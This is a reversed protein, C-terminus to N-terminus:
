KGEIVFETRRNKARGEATINEAISKTSGFGKHSLRSAAVGQSVLHDRVAKARDESLKLNLADTGDSDTHGHIAVKMKPNANLYIPLPM